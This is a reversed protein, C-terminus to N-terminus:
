WIGKFLMKKVLYSILGVIYYIYINYIYVYM